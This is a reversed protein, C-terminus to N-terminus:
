VFQAVRLRIPSYIFILMILSYNIVDDEAETGENGNSPQENEDNGSENEPENENQENQILVIGPESQFGEEDNNM